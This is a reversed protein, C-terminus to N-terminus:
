SVEVGPDNEISEDVLNLGNATIKALVIGFKKKKEIKIYGREELYDLYSALSHEDVTHGMDDLLRRLV